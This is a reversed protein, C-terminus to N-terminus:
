LNRPEESFRKIERSIVGNIYEIISVVKAYEMRKPGIVGITGFVTNGASYTAGVISCDKIEEIPNENGILMKVREDRALEILLNGISKKEELIELFERAREVNRFEPFNMINTTGNLYIETNCMQAICEFVAELMMNAAAEGIGRAIAEARIIGPAANNIHEPPVGCLRRKCIHAFSALDRETYRSPLSVVSSKVTGSKSVVIICIKHQDIGVAEVATIESDDQIPTLSVATYKTLKSIIASANRIVAGLENIKINLESTVANIEDLTLDRLEMLSDVYLRYGKDSPVRGASTHPQAILGMDELDAMENRITASSLNLEHNKAISRSGVPEATDIYEDIIAQLIRRKRYDLRM